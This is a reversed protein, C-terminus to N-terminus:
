SLMGRFVRQLAQLDPEDGDSDGHLRQAYYIVESLTKIRAMIGHYIPHDEDNCVNEAAEALKFIELNARRSLELRAASEEIGDTACTNDKAM